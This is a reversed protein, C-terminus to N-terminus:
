IYYHREEASDFLGFSVDLSLIKDSQRAYIARIYINLSDSDYIQGTERLIIFM